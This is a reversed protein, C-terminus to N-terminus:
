QLPRFCFDTIAAQNRKHLSASGEAPSAYKPRSIVKIMKEWAPFKERFNRTIFDWAGMNVPEEQVWFWERVHGYKAFIAELQKHPFPYLQELRIIATHDNELERRRQLIEYYIKGTCFLVRKVNSSQLQQEDLVEQFRTGEAIDAVPSQCEPHRLLSKPTFIVLPKRFNRAMQRRMVHFFNAPTTCNVVQMNLQACLQLYREMRASSHEPGQGEYGHPLLLTLGSSLRWKEESSSIFQDLIIQAGNSFDGFQAEWITLNDPSSLAYGHEFGLVGYESLLSNWIEITKQGPRINNLGIHKSENEEDIFVAHRHSFTGRQVDEGSMRIRHGDLLIAGYALLEGMAWNITSNEEVMARREAMLKQVKKLPHFDEPVTTLAHTIEQIEDMPIGTEPSQHFDAHHAFRYGAWKSQHPSVAAARQRERAYTLRDQLMSNIEGEISKAHAEDITGEAHLSEIYDERVSNKNKLTNYMKPQTFRPEDAENHGYKRFGVIDIFVDSQFKQRYEIAKKMVLVVAEPDQGNVHFVPADIAKALGTCYTSSRADQYSTTFGIQNNVVIHVTGGVKYGRLKSMQLCEYVIGQGAIAADGHILVPVIRSYDNDFWQEAKARVMGAVVPDVAELHSPNFALTLKVKHGDIDRITSYGKHYKVDASGQGGFSYDEFESFVDEYTKGFINTLINLRGRHASGLILQRVGLEAGRRTFMELAPILVELGELSFRKQGLFRTQLFKEFVEAENLKKLVLMKEDHTLNPRSRIPEFQEQIWQTVEPNRNHMYQIGIKRTYIEQLTQRITELTANGLGLRAGASFVRPLDEESLNFNELELRPKLNRRQWLPNTDAALHGKARYAHILDLVGIQKLTDDDPESTMGRRSAFEMGEFFRRWGPELDDPNSLFQQYLSEIYEHQSYDLYTDPKM